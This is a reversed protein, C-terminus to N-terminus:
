PRIGSLDIETGPRSPTRVADPRRQAPEPEPDKGYRAFDAPATRSREPRTPHRKM